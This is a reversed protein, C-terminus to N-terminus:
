FVLGQVSTVWDVYTFAEVLYSHDTVSAEDYSALFGRNGAYGGLIWSEGMTAVSLISSNEARNTVYTPLFSALNRFGERTFEVAWAHSPSSQAIPMGGAILWERGNWAVSNVAYFVRTGLAYELQQTLDIFNRGDYEALFGMGGIMWYDGNWAVTQVSTFNSISKQAKLVLSTVLRSSGDLTFLVGHRMWGGGVLWYEGNWANTYLIADQQDPVLSSLDTFTVGDFVGLAMHNSPGGGMYTSLAGSGLGSLLWYKGSYSAAFIDGGAWSSAGGYEDLSDQSVVHAGDYLWVYPGSSGDDTGWGSVLLQTGNFGGGWVTGGSRVPSLATYSFNPLSFRYLRSFQGLRFWSGNQGGM